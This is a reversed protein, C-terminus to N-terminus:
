RPVEAGNAAALEAYSEYLDPWGPGPMLASAPLLHLAVALRVTLHEYGAVALWGACLQAPLTRSTHCGFMEAGVPQEAGPRGITGASYEALNPFRKAEGTVDRRFPCVRCPRRRYRLLGTM